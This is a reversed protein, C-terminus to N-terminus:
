SEATWEKAMERLKELDLVAAEDPTEFERALRGLKVLLDERKRIYGGTLPLLLRRLHIIHPLADRLIATEPVWNSPIGLGRMAALVQENTWYPGGTKSPANDQRILHGIVGGDKDSWLFSQKLQHLFEEARKKLKDGNFGQGKVYDYVVQHEPTRDM